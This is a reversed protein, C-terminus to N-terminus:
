HSSASQQWAVSFGSGEDVVRTDIVRMYSPERLTCAHENFDHCGTTLKM